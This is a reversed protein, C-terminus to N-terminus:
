KIVEDAHDLLTPPITLGLAKATKLNIVLEHNSPSQVPLKEVQEGMLIRDVYGAARRYQDILDAGFSILGGDAVFLRRSYVAPLKYRAALSIILERHITALTSTTVILGSNPTRAFAAFARVIELEHGLNADIVEMGRSSAATQIISWQEVGATIGPDRLIGVRKVDPAIEKLLELQKGSIEPAYTALGTINGGPRALSAAFGTGVPDTDQAMVIPITKTADKSARTSGPGGTVIVDVKLRVLEAALVPFRELKDEAYRYEIIINKGEIYGLDHLGQRLAEIRAAVATPDSGLFGIRPIKAPPQAGALYVPPLFWITLVALLIKRRM